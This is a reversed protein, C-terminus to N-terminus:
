DLSRFLQALKKAETDVSHRELVRQQAAEGMKELAELPTALFEELVAVLRDVDGAPFLWGDVGSRVLEPIGAVFTTLV